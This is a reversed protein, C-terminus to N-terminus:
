CLTAELEGKVEAAASGRCKQSPGPASCVRHSSSLSFHRGRLRRLVTLSSIPCRFSAQPHFLLRAASMLITCITNRLTGSTNLFSPRREQRSSRCTHFLIARTRDIQFDHDEGCFPESKNTRITSASGGCASARRLLAQFVQPPACWRPRTRM